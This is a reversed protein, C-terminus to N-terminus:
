RKEGERVITECMKRFQCAGGDPHICETRMKEGFPCPPHQEREPEAQSAQQVPRSPAAQAPRDEVINLHRNPKPKSPM